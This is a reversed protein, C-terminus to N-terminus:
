PRIGQKNAMMAGIAAGVGSGDKAHKIEVQKELEQGVLVRLSSRLREEFGPYKEFLTGDIGVSIPPKAGTQKITAAVAVGSLRAARTGVCRCAWQVIELDSQSILEDAVDLEKILIKRVKRLGPSQDLEIASMFETKFKEQENLKLTSHGSFLMNKDILYLLINRTIEGLYKGSIFKEFCQLRPNNTERDLKNDFPTVPLVGRENDFAGWETNVIMVDSDIAPLSDGLKTFNSLKDIFAGNTGTGFIAGLLGRGQNVYAHSLLAGTTDNVLATCKIGLKRRDLADQLMQVVDKGVANKASYEKTWTLLTGRNLATQEVPFSFTFGLSLVDGPARAAHHSEELSKGVCEAIYDFLATADGAKIDKLVDFKRNIKMEPELGDGKLVVECVRLNTGGLDIALFTGTETGNPVGTVFTPIMAMHENYKSYGTQFDKVFKEEIAELKKESLLFSAEIENLVERTADPISSKKPTSDGEGSLYRCIAFGAGLGAFVLAGMPWLGAAAYEPGSQFVKPREVAADSATSRMRSRVIPALTRSQRILQRFPLTSRQSIM